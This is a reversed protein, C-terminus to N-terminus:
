DCTRYVGKGDGGAKLCKQSALRHSGDTLSLLLTPRLCTRLTQVTSRLLNVCVITATIKVRYICGQPLWNGSLAFGDGGERGEEM